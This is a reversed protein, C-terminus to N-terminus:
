FKYLLALKLLWNDNTDETGVTEEDTIWYGAGATLTLNDYLQHELVVDIEMGLKSDDGPEDSDPEPDETYSYTQISLTGKTKPTLDKKAYLKLTTLNTICYDGELDELYKNIVILDWDYFYSFRSSIPVFMSSENDDGPEDEKEGTTMLAAIGINAYELEACIDAFLAYGKAEFDEGGNDIANLKVNSYDAEFKMKLPAYDIDANLGIWFADMDEYGPLGPAFYGEDVTGDNMMVTFLGLNMNPAPKFGLTLGYLDEDDESPTEAEGTSDYEDSTDGEYLKATFLCVDVNNLKTNVKIADFTAYSGLVIYNGLSMWQKGVRANLNTNPIAFDLYALDFDVNGAWPNGSDTQVRATGGENYDFLLSTNDGNGWRDNNPAVMRIYAKLNDSIKTTIGLRFRQDYYTQSDNFDNDSTKRGDLDYAYARIRYEGDFSVEVAMAPMTQFLLVTLIFATFVFYLAKKM